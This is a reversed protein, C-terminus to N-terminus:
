RAFDATTAGIPVYWRTILKQIKMPIESNTHPIRSGRITSSITRYRESTIDFPIAVELGSRTM